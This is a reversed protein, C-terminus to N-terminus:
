VCCYIENYVIYCTAKLAVSLQNKFRIFVQESDMESLEIALNTFM